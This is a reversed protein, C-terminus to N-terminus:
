FSGHKIALEIVRLWEDFTVYHIHTERKRDSAVAFGGYRQNSDHVLTWICSHILWHCMLQVDLSVSEGKGYDDARFIGRVTWGKEAIYLYQTAATKAQLVEFSMEQLGNEAIIEEAEKEDEMVKRLIIASYLIARNLRHEAIHSFMTMKRWFAIERSFTQLERKWQGDFIM